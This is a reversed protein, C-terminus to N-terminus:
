RHHRLNDHVDPGVGPEAHVIAASLRPIHHLLQHEVEHALQHAARLDLGADVVISIEARLSHGIWRLRLEALGEVGA